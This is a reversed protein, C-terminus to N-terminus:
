VRMNKRRKLVVDMDWQRVLWSNRIKWEKEPDVLSIDYTIYLASVIKFIEVLALSRGPCCRKGFGFVFEADKLRAVRSKFAAEDEGGQQLWREPRFEDADEGFTPRHRGAVAPNIGVITGPPLFKGDPLTYGEAPVIRELSLSIAPHLRCAETIVAELYPLHQVEKYAPPWTAFTTTDLEQQLKQQANPHKCLYYVIARLEIAVTDTGPLINRILWQIVTTDDIQDDMEKEHLFDDLFDRSKVPDHKDEGNVRRHYQKAAFAIAASFTPPGIRVVPNKDLLRDLFPIQGILAVYDHAQESHSICNEFDAGTRLFGFEASFTTQGMIDWALFQLWKDMPCPKSGSAFDNLRDLIHVIPKSMTAEYRLVQHTQFYKNVPRIWLSHENEDPTSFSSRQIENGVRIDSTTYYRSKIWSRNAYISKILAPDSISLCDPGLCVVAGYQAHLHRQTEHIRGKYVQIFRWLHTFKAALPGPLSKTSSTLYTFVAHVLAATATATAITGILGM